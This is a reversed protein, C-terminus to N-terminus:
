WGGGGGGGSGWSGGGGGGGGWSGGGGGGWGGGGGHSGGSHGHHHDNRLMSGVLAGAVFDGLGDDRNTSQMQGRFIAEAREADNRVRKITELTRQLDQENHITGITSRQQRADKLAEIGDARPATRNSLTHLAQEARTLAQDTRRIEEDAQKRMTEIRQFGAYIEQYLQAASTQLATYRALADRLADTRADEDRQEAAKRTQYATQVDTQLTDLNHKNKPTIDDSHLATFEVIKQVEATALQQARAVQERLKQMAEVESRAGGLAEDALHNATQAYKIIALWDPRPNAIETTAKALHEAAKTLTSEPTKGIDPDNAHIYSWGTDIDAQASDIEQRAATRAAELDKLRQIISDILKRAYAIHQEATNLDQQAGLFDQTEMTNRETARQWLTHAQAAATEAESGNGRIDSWTSEAFEDVIDFTRRGEAIYTALQQGAQEIQPLRQENDRRLAPMGGGRAVGEARATEAQELLTHADQPQNRELVTAIQHLLKEATDFAQYGAEVRYNQAAAKQAAARGASLGECMEAYSTLIHHLDQLIASAASAATISEAARHETLLSAAHDIQEQAPRLIAQPQPFDKGFADLQQAVDAFTKKANDITEPAAANVRDLEARRTEAQELQQRAAAIQQTAQKYTKTTNQYDGQTPERKDKLQTNANDFQEQAKVFQTEAASQWQALQAVDSPAYSLKDYQAKERADHLAQGMDAIAVGAERRAEEVAQRTQQLAHAIARRKSITRWLIPGGVILLVLFIAAFAIPRLDTNITTGGGPQPPNAIANNIAGLANVFGDTTNGAALGANLQSTRISDYNNNTGLAQTWRDGFRIASYRPNFSVYIAILNANVSTSGSSLNDQQLRQQFNSAGGDTETYIAVIAGRSILTNAARQIQARNLEDADDHYILSGQALAPAALLLLLALTM